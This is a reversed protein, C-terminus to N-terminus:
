NKFFDWLIDLIREARKEVLEATWDGEDGVTVISKMHHNFKADQLLKLTSDQLEVGLNSAKNKLTQHKETDTERLFQYYIYKAKWGKNGASSNIDTPLLTLNGVSQCWEEETYFAKDWNHTNGKQPAIHEITKLDDSVWKNLKLYEATGDKGMKMLGAETEDAITNHASIFLALKCVSKARNYKLAYKAKAKWTEKNLLNRDEHGLVTNFYAKLSELDIQPSDVWANSNEKIVERNEDLPRKLFNRYEVDLGSNSQASRWITYFRAVAKTAEIFNSISKEEGQIIGSYFRGLITIAMKHNSEKLYLILLSALDAEPHESIKSIPLGNTGDYDLWVEKYFAAYNGFFHIFDMQGQLDSFEKSFTEILWKRQQSFHSSLKKGEVTLAFSTLIDKTLSSKNAASTSGTFLADIKEFSKEVLSGKFRVTNSNDLAHVVSPKFTEIATLPTGTANLSQFMDFAWEENMPQIITFCCRELLYHAVAFLQVLSCLKYELSNKNELEKKKVIDELDFRDYQWIYEQNIKSLVEWATIFDETQTEHAKLVTSTLWKDIRKLNEGTHTKPRFSPLKDVSQNEDIYNIFNALYNAVDSIYNSDVEGDKTWQDRNGRIIKPKRYPNGRQLDLSFIDLLKKKWFNCVEDLQKKVNEDTSSPIKDQITWIHHYLLTSFLAITSLRQQGDIINEVLSPLGQPDIPYISRKDQVQVAIVTGLFRIEDKNETISFIGQAVDDLLQDINDKDWSYERQYLPIYLGVGPKQYFGHVNTTEPNFAKDIQFM